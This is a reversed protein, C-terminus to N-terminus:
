EVLAADEKDVNAEGVIIGELRGLCESRMHRDKLRGESKELNPHECLDIM